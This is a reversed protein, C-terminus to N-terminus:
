VRSILRKYNKISDRLSDRFGNVIRTFKIRFPMTGIIEMLMLNVLCLAHTLILALVEVIMIVSFILINIVKNM